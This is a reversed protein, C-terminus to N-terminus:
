YKARRSYQAQPGYIYLLITSNAKLVDQILMGKVWGVESGAKGVM